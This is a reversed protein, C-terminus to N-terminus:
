GIQQGGEGECFLSCICRVSTNTITTVWSSSSHSSEFVIPLFRCHNEISSAMDCSASCCSRWEFCRVVEDDSGGGIMDSFSLSSKVLSGTMFLQVAGSSAAPSFSVVVSDVGVVGGAKESQCM